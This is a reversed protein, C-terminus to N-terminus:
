RDTMLGACYKELLDIIAYIKPKLTIIALFDGPQAQQAFASIAGELESAAMLRDSSVGAEEFGEQMKVIIEGPTRGRLYEELETCIFYDFTESLNRTVETFLWDPRNGVCSLICFKRGSVSIKGISDALGRSSPVSWGADVLIKVSYGDIFNFKGPTDEISNEYARLAKIVAARPVKMGEALAAAAMANAINQPFLGNMCSPLDAINIISETVEGQQRQIFEGENTRKLTYAVGGRKLHAVIASSDPRFSFLILKEPPYEPAFKLCLSDDGNLIVKDRAADIVQKKHLAMEEVSNIGDIEIQERDVNLLAAVTCRDIYLGERLLGGRATELVAATINPNELVMSHGKYGALDFSTLYNWNIAIGDTTAFGVIHGAKSLMLSLM